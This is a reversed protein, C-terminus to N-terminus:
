AAFWTQLWVVRAHSVGTVHVGAFQGPHQAPLSHTIAVVGAAHPFPPWAHKAHPGFSVHLPPTQWGAAVHLGAVHGPQQMPFMQAAPLWFVAHPRPPWAQSLQAPLTGCCTQWPPTHWFWTHPGAFQAPQQWPFTQANPV